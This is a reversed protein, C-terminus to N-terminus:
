TCHEEVMGNMYDDKSTPGVEDTSRTVVENSCASTVVRGRNCISVVFPWDCVKPVNGVDLTIGERGVVVDGLNLTIEDWKVVEVIIIEGDSSVIGVALNGEVVLEAGSENVM